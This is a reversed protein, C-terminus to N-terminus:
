RSVQQSFSEEDEEIYPDEGERFQAEAIYYSAEIGFM